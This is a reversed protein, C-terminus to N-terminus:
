WGKVFNFIIWVPLYVRSPQSLFTRSLRQLLRLEAISRSKKRRRGMSGWFWKAGLGLVALENRGEENVLHGGLKGTFPATWSLPLGGALKLLSETRGAALLTTRYLFHVAGLVFWLWVKLSQQVSFGWICALIQAM